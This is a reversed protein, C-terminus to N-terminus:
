NLRGTHEPFTLAKYDCINPWALRSTTHTATINTHTQALTLSLWIRNLYNRTVYVICIKKVRYNYWPAMCLRATISSVESCATVPESRAYVKYYKSM